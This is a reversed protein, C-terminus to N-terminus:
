HTPTAPKANYITAQVARAVRSHIGDAGIVIRAQETIPTGGKTQGCIGIVREGEWVLDQVAFGERLEVGAQVAAEVLITDLVTRRPAYGEVVDDAPPPTGTLAFAGFDFTLTRLPPCNSAQLQNLM